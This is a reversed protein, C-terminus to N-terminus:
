RRIRSDESVGSIGSEQSSPKWWKSEVRLGPYCHGSEYGSEHGSEPGSQGSETHVDQGTERSDQLLPILIRPSRRGDEKIELHGRLKAKALARRVTRENVHATEALIVNGPKPTRCSDRMFRTIAYMVRCDDGKMEPDDHVQDLWMGRFKGFPMKPDAGNVAPKVINAVARKTIGM